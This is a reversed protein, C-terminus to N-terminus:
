VLRVGNATKKMGITGGAYLVLVRSRRKEDAVDDFAYAPLCVKRRTAM